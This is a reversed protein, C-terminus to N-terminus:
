GQAPLVFCIKAGKGEENAQAWIKGGHFEIIKRAIFLGVGAGQHKRTLHSESQFFEEFVEERDKEPIGDGNDSVSVFIYDKVGDLSFRIKAPIITDNGKIKLVNTKVVGGPRSFKVANNMINLVAQSLRDPDADASLNDGEASPEFRVGNQAASQKYDEIKGNIFDAINFRVKEIQIVGSKIKEMESLDYVILRLRETNESITDVFGKQEQTLNDANKKKLFDSYGKIIAVPTRLEHSIVAIFNTKMRDYEQLKTYNNRLEKEAKELSKLHANIMSYVLAATIFVYVWGKITQAFAYAETTHAFLSLINDSFFIWLAGFIFYVAAIKFASKKM